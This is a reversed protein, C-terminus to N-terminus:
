RAPDKKDILLLRSHSRYNFLLEELQWEGLEFIGMKLSNDLRQSAIVTAFPIPLIHSPTM